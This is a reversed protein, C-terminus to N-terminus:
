HINTYINTCTSLPGWPLNSKDLQAEEKFLTMIIIIIIIIMICVPNLICTCLPPPPPYNFLLRWSCVSEIENLDSSLYCNNQLKLYIDVLFQCVFRRGLVPLCVMLGFIVNVLLLCVLTQKVTYLETLIFKQFHEIDHSKPWGIFKTENVKERSKLCSVTTEFCSLQIIKVSLLKPLYVRCVVYFIFVVIKKSYKATEKAHQLWIQINTSQNVSFEQHVPIIVWYCPM